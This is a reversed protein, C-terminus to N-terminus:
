NQLYERLPIDGCLDSELRIWQRTQVLYAVAQTALMFLKILHLPNSPCSIVRLFLNVSLDFM